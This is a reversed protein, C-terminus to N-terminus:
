DRLLLIAEVAPQLLHAIRQIAGRLIRQLEEVVELERQVLAVDHDERGLALWLRQWVTGRHQVESILYVGLNAVMGYTRLYVVFNHRDRREQITTVLNLDDRRLIGM